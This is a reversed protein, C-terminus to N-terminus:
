DAREIAHVAYDVNYDLIDTNKRIFGWTDKGGHYTMAAAGLRGAFELCRDYYEWTLRRVHRNASSLNWDIHPSHITVWDFAGVAEEVRQLDAEKAEFLDVGVNAFNQPYGLQAQDLTPVIEFGRFGAESVMDIARLIDEGHTSPMFHTSIGIRDEINSM